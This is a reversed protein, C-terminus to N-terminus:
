TLLETNWTVAATMKTANDVDRGYTDDVTGHRVADAANSLLLAQCEELSIGSLVPGDSNCLDWAM